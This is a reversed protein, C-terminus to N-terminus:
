YAKNVFTEDGIVLRWKGFTMRGVAVLDGKWEIAAFYGNAEAFKEARASM